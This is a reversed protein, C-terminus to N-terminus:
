RKRASLLWLATTGIILPVIVVLHLAVGIALATELPIGYIGLTLMSLGEFVGLAAISPPLAVGIMLVALLTVAAIWSDVGFARQVAYNIMVSLSWTIVTWTAAGVITDRRRLVTLSDLLRQLNNLAFSRWRTSLGVLVRDLRVLGRSIWREPIMAVAVFGILVLAALLGVSRAPVLFWDPLPAAWAVILILGCLALWDWAKEILVSGLIRAFSSGPERGLLISRVVDGARIPLLHNLLQGTLLARLVATHRFTLPRLLVIWRLMRAVYTALAIVIAGGIWSWDVSALALSFRDPDIARAILGVGIASITIGLALWALSRPSRWSRDPRSATSV